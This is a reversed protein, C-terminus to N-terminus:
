IIRDYEQPLILPGQECVLKTLLTVDGVHALTQLCLTIEAEGGVLLTIPQQYIEFNL